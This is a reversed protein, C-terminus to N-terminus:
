KTKDYRCLKKNDMPRRIDHKVYINDIKICYHVAGIKFLQDSLPLKVPVGMKLRRKILHLNVVRIRGVSALM